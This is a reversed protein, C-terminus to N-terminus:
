QNYNRDWDVFMYILGDAGHLNVFPMLGNNISFNCLTHDIANELPLLHEHTAVAPNTQTVDRASRGVTLGFLKNINLGGPEKAAGDQRMAESSRAMNSETTDNAEGTTEKVPENRFEIGLVGPPIIKAVMVLNGRALEVTTTYGEELFNDLVDLANFQEYPIDTAPAGKITKGIRNLLLTLAKNVRMAADNAVGLGDRNQHIYNVLTGKGVNRRHSHNTENFNIM